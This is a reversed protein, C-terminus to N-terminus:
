QANEQQHKQGQMAKGHLATLRECSLQEVDHVLNLVQFGRAMMVIIVTRDVIVVRVFGCGMERIM